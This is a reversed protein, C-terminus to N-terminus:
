KKIFEVQGTALSYHAPLIKLTKNEYKPKLVPNTVRLLKAMNVANLRIAHDLTDGELEKAQEVAPGIKDTLSILHGGEAGELAATVAGCKEHGMVVVLATGLHAVAYEISAVVVDDIVNGAVRIVFLDGIGTDFLIEPIVRSDSCCLVVAFPNQGEVVRKRTSIDANPHVSKGKVFAENGKRLIKYAEICTTGM